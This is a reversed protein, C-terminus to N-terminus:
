YYWALQAFLGPGTSFYQGELPAEIGGYESGDPGVPINVAALIQLNQKWDYQAVVQVLSSPDELNVFFNPILMFLPSVEISASLALYDRALTFLEGRALRKLLEPNQALDVPSYAGNKQGFGNHYYELVGSINKGGWAWSYSISAALSFVSEEGTGTWTLDGRGVAGGINVIGGLGLIQDGFHEAALLDYENMGLFGHYKFALSSQDSEVNGTRLDRRVVAVGQLDNGNNFLYQGYLMDDGTKYEKDVAAPDFPNFIDMPSFIMGNGWSIAQRGFRWVMHEGTYAINLRDLRQAVFRKGENEITHTLDWWRRDDSIVNGTLLAAGPFNRALELTDGHVAIFQYDAKFDWHDRYASFKLRAELNNGLSSGGLAQHFASNDPYTSYIFQYKLHGGFDWGTEPEVKSETQAELIGCPMGALCSGLCLFLLGSLLRTKM